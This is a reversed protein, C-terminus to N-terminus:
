LTVVVNEVEQNLKKMPDTICRTMDAVGWIGGSVGKYCERSAQGAFVTHLCKIMKDITRVHVCHIFVVLGHRRFVSYQM